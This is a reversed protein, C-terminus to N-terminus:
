FDEGEEYRAKREEAEIERAEMMIDDIKYYWGCEFPDLGNEGKCYRCSKRYICYEHCNKNPDIM